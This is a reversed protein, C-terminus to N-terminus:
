ESDNTLFLKLRNNHVVKNIQKRKKNSQVCIKTNTPSLIEIVEHPGTWIPDLKTRAENKLLVKDGVNFM